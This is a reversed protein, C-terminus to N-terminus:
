ILEAELFDLDTVYVICKLVIMYFALLGALPVLNTKTITKIVLFAIISFFMGTIFYLIYNSTSFYPIVALFFLFDGKGISKFPNVLKREKLSLYLYLGICTLLLFLFNYWLILMPYSKKFFFIVGIIAITFPLAVHITRHKMDQFFVLLLLVFLVAELFIEM